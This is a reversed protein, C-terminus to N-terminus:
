VLEEMCALNGAAALAATLKMNVIAAPFLAQTVATARLTAATVATRQQQQPQQRRSGGLSWVVLWVEQICASNAAATSAAATGATGQQEARYMGLKICTGSSHVSSSGTPSLCCHQCCVTRQQEGLAAEYDELCASAVARLRYLQLSVCTLVAAVTLDAQHAM